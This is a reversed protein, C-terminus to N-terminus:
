RLGTFYFKFFIINFMSAMINNDRKRKFCNKNQKKIYQRSRRREFHFSYLYKFLFNSLARDYSNKNFKNKLIGFM